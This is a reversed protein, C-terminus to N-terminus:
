TSCEETVRHAIRLRDNELRELTVRPHQRLRSLTVHLSKKNASTPAPFVRHLLDNTSLPGHDAITRAVFRLAPSLYAFTQQEHQRFAEATVTYPAGIPLARVHGAPSIIRLEGSDAAVRFQPGLTPADAAVSYRQHQMTLSMRVPEPLARVDCTRMNLLIVGHSHPALAVWPHSDLDIGDPWRAQATLAWEPSPQSDYVTVRHDESIAACSGASLGALPRPVGRALLLQLVATTTM